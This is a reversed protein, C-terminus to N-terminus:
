IKLSTWLNILRKEANAVKQHETCVYLLNNKINYLAAYFYDQTQKDHFLLARELESLMDSALPAFQFSSLLMHISQFLFVIYEKRTVGFQRYLGRWAYKMHVAGQFYDGAVFFCMAAHHWCIAELWYMKLAVSSVTKNKGTIYGKWTLVPIAAINTQMIHSLISYGRAIKMFRVVKLHVSECRYAKKMHICLHRYNLTFLQFYHLESSVVASIEKKDMTCYTDPFLQFNANPARAWMGYTDFRVHPINVITRCIMNSRVFINNIISFYEPDRSVLFFIAYLRDAASPGQKLRHTSSGPDKLANNAACVVSRFVDVNAGKYILYKEDSENHHIRIYLDFAFRSMGIRWGRLGTINNLCSPFLKEVLFSFPRIAKKLVEILNIIIPLMTEKHPAYTICSNKTPRYSFESSVYAYAVVGLFDEICHYWLNNHSCFTFERGYGVLLAASIIDLVDKDSFSQKEALANIRIESSKSVTVRRTTIKQKTLTKLKEEEIDTLLVKRELENKTTHQDKLVNINSCFLSRSKDLNRKM